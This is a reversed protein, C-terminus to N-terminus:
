RVPRFGARGLPGDNRREYARVAADAGKGRLNAITLFLRRHCARERQDHGRLQGADERGCGVCALRIRADPEGGLLRSM